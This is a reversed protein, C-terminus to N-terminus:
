LVYTSPRSRGFHYLPICPIFVRPTHHALSRRPIHLSPWSNTRSHGTYFSIRQGERRDGLIAYGQYSNDFALMHGNSAHKRSRRALAILLAAICSDRLPDVPEIERRKKYSYSRRRKMEIEDRHLYVVTFSPGTILSARVHTERLPLHFVRVSDVVFSHFKILEKM